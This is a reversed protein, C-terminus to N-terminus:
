RTDRADAGGDLCTTGPCTWLHADCISRCACNYNEVWPGCGAFAGTPWADAPCSAAPRLPAPCLYRGGVCAAATPETDDAEGCAHVCATFAGAVCAVEPRAPPSTPTTTEPCNGSSTCADGDCDTRCPLCAMAPMLSILAALPALRALPVRRSRSARTTTFACKGRLHVFWRRCNM